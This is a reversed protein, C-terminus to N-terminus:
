KTNLHTYAAGELLAYNSIQITKLDFTRILYAILIMAVVIMDVRLVIMGPIQLREARNQFVLQEFARYFATIPYAFGAKEKNPGRGTQEYHYMDNLTDFSGSSGILCNPRYQHIANHLDLLKETFFDNMKPIMAPNIPDTDMYKEMLRLGGIEFSQQWLKKDANCIIFEVSGGGIDVILSPETIKVAKKVGEYILDAEKDGNIIEINIETKEKIIKCFEAANHANRLASTGYAFVKNPAIKHEDLIQKFQSLVDLGREIADESIQKAAMGGMGLKAALSKKFVIKSNKVIAVHFTNSGLDIVAFEMIYNKFYLPAHNKIFSWTKTKNQRFKSPANQM